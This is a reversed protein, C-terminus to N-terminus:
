AGRCGWRGTCPTLSVCNAGELRWKCSQMPPLWPPLSSLNTPKYFFAALVAVPPPNGALLWPTSKRGSAAACLAGSTTTSSKSGALLRPASWWARPATPLAPKSVRARGSSGPLRCVSVSFLLPLTLCKKLLRARVRKHECARTCAASTRMRVKKPPPKGPGQCCVGADMSHDCSPTNGWPGHACLELNAEKGTCQIDGLWIPGSGCLM